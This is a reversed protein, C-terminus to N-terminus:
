YGPNQKLNKNADLESQPIPLRYNRAPDFSNIMKSYVSLGGNDPDIQLQSDSYNSSTKMYPDDSIHSQNLELGIVRKFRDPKIIDELMKTRKLDFWRQREFCFEWARETMVAARFKDKLTPYNIFGSTYYVHRGPYDPDTGDALYKDAQMGGLLDPNPHPNPANLYDADIDPVHARERIANLAQYAETPPADNMENLAEAKVLYMDALRLYTPAMNGGWEIVAESRWKGSYWDEAPHIEIPEATGPHFVVPMIDWQFRIDADHFSMVFQTVPKIWGEEEHYFYQSNRPDWGSPVALPALWQGFKTPQWVTTNFHLDMIIESCNPQQSQLFNKAYDLDPRSSNTTQLSYWGSHIVEDAKAAALEWVSKGDIDPSGSGFIKDRWYASGM